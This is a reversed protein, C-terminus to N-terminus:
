FQIKGNRQKERKYADWRCVFREPTTSRNSQHFLQREFKIYIFGECQLQMRLGKQLLKEVEINKRRVYVYMYTIYVYLYM